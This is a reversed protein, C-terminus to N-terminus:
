REDHEGGLALRIGLVLALALVAHLLVLQPAPVWVGHGLQLVAPLLWAGAVGAVLAIGIALAWRRPARAGRALRAFLLSWAGAVALHVLIGAITAARRAWAGDALTVGTVLRGVQTFAAWAGDGSAIGYRVLVGATAAGAIAGTRIGAALWTPRAPADDHRRDATELADLPM